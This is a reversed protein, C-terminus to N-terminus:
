CIVVDKPRKLWYEPNTDWRPLNQNWMPNYVLFDLKVEQNPDLRKLVEIAEAIKM